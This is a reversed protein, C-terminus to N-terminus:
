DWNDIHVVPTQKQATAQDVVYPVGSVGTLLVVIILAVRARYFYAERRDNAIINVETAEIISERV